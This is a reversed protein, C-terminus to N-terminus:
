QWQAILTRFPRAIRISEADYDSRVQGDVLVRVPRQRSPWSLELATGSRLGKGLEVRLESDTRRASMSLKGYATPLDSVKLGEGAVWSPPTGPLLQLRDDGEHMLMGFLARAYESGIWTHPMDGLYIAHRPDSYVVEAFMQWERPRRDSMLRVLLEDADRPRDLAVYALVNRMEYPTYAYLADPMDRKRVDALYRDFTNALADAPMAGIQGTPDMGISVSTPDGDGLDASAPIFDSKKWAITARLSAAVSERLAAYQARAWTAMAKDGWEEALWAGDHWGKLAWYDDWYSHTPTSYGEHSISPAIIGRFREAGGMYGPVLTRERLGQLFQLAARVKVRYDRVSAAGGDVRAIEAVLWVFQGQSDYELDSGFGRNVSGDDDLIPSVLGDEHVAHQAYWRLYERATSAMGLRALTAASASGDRIFSRNYNRPGPQMAPGTQNLLM